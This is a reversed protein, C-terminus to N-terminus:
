NIVLLWVLVGAILCIAACAGIGVLCGRAAELDPWDLPEAEQDEPIGVWRIWSFEGDRRRYLTSGPLFRGGRDRPQEHVPYTV